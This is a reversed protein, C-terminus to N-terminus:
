NLIKFMDATFNKFGMILDYPTQTITDSVRGLFMNTIVQFKESLEPKTLDLGCNVMLFELLGTNNMFEGPKYTAPVSLTSYLDKISITVKMENCLGKANWADGSGGKDITINDIIGMEVNFWGPSFGKILYPMKYTNATLHHPLAMALIHALPVGINIYWSMVNGYPTSLPISLSYSKAYSSDSWIEPVIFNGGSIIQKASGTLRRMFTAIEGDGKLNSQIFSDASSAMQNPLESIADIGTVGALTYLEKALGEASSLAGDIFSSQTSNSASESFSGGADIFFQVYEYDFAIADHVTSMTQDIFQGISSHKNKNYKGDLYPENDVYMSKFKYYRWDYLGFTTGKAWPVPEKDINLFIAMTRAIMNVRRIYDSFANKHEFYKIPDDGATGQIRQIILEKASDSKGWGSLINTFDKKEDETMGPLFKSTGPKLFISPAELVTTEAFLRGLKSKNSIRVDNYPLFQHPLGFLRVSGDIASDLTMNKTNAITQYNASVGSSIITNGATETVQDLYEPHTLISRGKPKDDVVDRIEGTDSSIIDIVKSGNEKQCCYKNEGIKIWPNGMTDDEYSIGQGTDGSMIMDVVPFSVSPGSRVLTNTKVKFKFAM